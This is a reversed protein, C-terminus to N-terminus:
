RTDETLTLSGVDPGPVIRVMLDADPATSHLSVVPAPDPRPDVKVEPPRPPPHVKPPRQPPWMMRASWLGLALLALVATGGLWRWWSAGTGEQAAAFAVTVPTGPTVREGPGPDQRFSLGSNQTGSPDVILRLEATALIQQVIQPELGTVDPVLVTPLVSGSGLLTVTVAEGATLQTGPLPRQDTVRREGKGSSAGVELKLSVGEVAARAQAETLGRLPPVTKGEPPPPTLTVKIPTGFSVIGGAGPSQRVVVGDGSAKILLGLAGLLGEAEQRTRGVLDPVASGVTLSIIASPSGHDSDELYQVVKQATVIAASEPVQAPVDPTIGINLDFAGTSGPYWKEKILTRAEPLPLGVVNPPQKKPAVVIAEAAGIWAEPRLVWGTLVVLAVTVAVVVNRSRALPPRERHWNATIM